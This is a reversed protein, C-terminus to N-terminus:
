EGEELIELKSLMRQEDKCVWIRGDCEVVVEKVHYYLVAGDSARVVNGATDLQPHFGIIRNGTKQRYEYGVHTCGCMM